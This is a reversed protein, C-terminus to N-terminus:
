QLLVRLWTFLWVVSHFLAFSLTLSHSLALFLSLFLFHFFFSFLSFLMFHSLYLWLLLLLLCTSVNFLHPTHEHLVITPFGYLLISPLSFIGVQKRIQLTLEFAHCLVSQVCLVFSHSLCLFLSKKNTVCFFAFSIDNTQQFLLFFVLLVFSLSLLIVFSFLYTHKITATSSSKQM